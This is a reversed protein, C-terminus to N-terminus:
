RIQRWSARGAKTDRSAVGGPPSLKVKSSNANGREEGPVGIFALKSGDATAVLGFATQFGGAGSGDLKTTRVGARKEDTAGIAGDGSTDFTESEGGESLNGAMFWGSSGDGCVDTSPTFTGFFASPLYVVPPTLMREGNPTQGQPLLDAYWGLANAPATGAVFRRYNGSQTITYSTLNARKLNVISAISGANNAIQYESAVDRVTYITQVETSLRDSDQFFKGTGFTVWYGRSLSKSVTPEATIPQAIIPNGPGVSAREAKFLPAKGPLALKWTAPKGTLNFRWINGGLDGVWATTAYNVGDGALAPVGMGNYAVTDPVTLASATGLSAGTLANLVVLRAVSKTGAGSPVASEYGNGFVAAWDSGPANNVRVIRVAGLVYGIDDAKVEWLPVPILPDTADIGVITRAGAGASAIVVTKWSSGDYVDGVAIQGDMYYQHTYSPQALSALKSQLEQPIFSWAVAGTKADLAHLMGDNAGVWVREQKTRKSAAYSAYSGSGPIGASTYGYDQKGQYAPLSNVVDGMLTKRPRLVGVPAPSVTNGREFAQEGLLYETVAEATRLKLNAATLLGYKATLLPTLLLQMSGPALLGAITADAMVNPGSFLKYTGGIKTVVTRSAPPPFSANTTTWAVSGLTGNDNIKIADVGGEWISAKLPIGTKRPISTQGYSYLGAFGLSSGSRVLSGSTSISPSTQTQSLINELAASIQAKLKGPNTVLAYNDPVGDSNVDWKALDLVGYKGAYWLPDHPISGAAGTGSSPSFTRRYKLHLVGDNPYIPNGAGTVADYSFAPDNLAYAVGGGGIDRVGLFAGDTTTGSIVFGMNQDICGAAYESSMDVTVTNDANATFTYVVIADMDNDTGQENDEFSVRFTGIARGGNKGADTPFGPVNYVGNFYFGAIRNTLFTTGAVFEGYNCGGVSKGFPIISVTNQGVPIKITPLAPTLAVAYTQVKLNGPTTISTQSGYKAVSGAYYSGQRTPEGPALGRVTGFSNALKATPAQDYPNGTNALSHGVFYNKSGLGEINWIDLGQTTVNLGAMSTPTAPASFAGFSSGPLDDSDFTPTVDSVVMQVASSCAAFGGTAKGRYPNLWPNTTPGVYPLGLSTDVSGAYTYSYDPTPTTSGGFYRLGEYMMEAIPNGYDKCGGNCNYSGGSGNGGSWQSIKLRDLTGVIQNVATNFTGDIANVEADFYGINSRVVGGKRANDYSGTILGFAITKSEGYDHLIGTPKWVVPNASPYGKCEDELPFANSKVCVLVRVIYDTATVGGGGVGGEGPDINGGVVPGEKAVWNWIREQRNLLVRLLPASTSNVTANGFLHQVVGSSPQAFPTYNSIQYTSRVSNYEKGWTHADQPIYARELVTTTATDVSRRGGYFVRRLADIRATTVYNLYDGSWAVSKGCTKLTADVVAMRPEFRSNASSYDYCKNSDFLGYYTILGPKYDVDFKGDGDIDSYDNYASNFLKEDRGVTLMILPPEPQRIVMPSQALQGYASPIVACVTSFLALFALFRIPKKM